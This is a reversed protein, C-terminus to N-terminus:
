GKSKKTTSKTARKATSKSKTARKASSESTSKSASKATSKSTSKGASRSTAKSTSKTAGKGTSKSTSKAGAKGTSKSTSKAASESTGKSASKASSKRGDATSIGTIEITSYRQRHGWRRRNNTKNKYTFGTIKPGKAEGVVRARVTSKGLATPGALVTDDDVLLVPTLEIEDDSADGGLLEVQLQQGEEVRYQKGGTKIVAYM